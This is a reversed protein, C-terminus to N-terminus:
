TRRNGGKTVRGSVTKSVGVSENKGRGRGWRKGKGKRDPVYLRQLLSALIGDGRKAEERDIRHEDQLTYDRFAEFDDWVKVRTKKEGDGLGVVRRVDILDIINVLTNKLDHKCEKITDPPPLGVELCLSQYGQLIRQEHTLIPPQTQTGQQRSQSGPLAEPATFYHLTLEERIAITRQRTYQQSGPVWNQSSALRKFEDEFSAGDDPAFNAFQAFHSQSPPPMDWNSADANTSQTTKM